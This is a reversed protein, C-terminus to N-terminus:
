LNQKSFLNWIIWRKMMQLYPMFSLNSIIMKIGWQHRDRVAWGLKQRDRVPLVVKIQLCTKYENIKNRAIRLSGSSFTLRDSVAVLLLYFIRGKM